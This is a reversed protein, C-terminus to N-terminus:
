NPKFLWAALLMACLGGLLQAAIFYPTDSPRIGTFTDTVSRAVTVAPNALSTSSTFWYAAAIYAGVAFPVSAPQSRSCGLIVMLLGFTAVFESWWQGIGTRAHDSISFLAEGFMLHTAALGVFAGVIQVAIYLSAVPWGAGRQFADVFTVIPNFHAGSVPSFTLILVYLGLGTAISNALLALAVNGGALNEGMIGSGVVVALLFATGLGEAVLKNRLSM